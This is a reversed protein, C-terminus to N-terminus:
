QERRRWWWLLGGLIAFALPGVVVCWIYASKLQSQTMLLRMHEPRKNEAVLQVERDLAWLIANNLFRENGGVGRQAWESSMSEASGIVVLRAGDSGETAIAPSAKEAEGGEPVSSNRLPILSAESSARVLAHAKDNAALLARPANWLTARRGEFDHVITHKGYTYSLWARGEFANTSDLLLSDTVQVHHGALLLNLKPLVLNSRLVILASGGSELYANLAFLEETSLARSPGHLILADCNDMTGAVRSEEVKVGARKLREAVHQWSHGAFRVTTESAQLPVEGVGKAVCLTEASRNLLKAMAGRFVGEARFESMAGAGLDDRAFSAMALLDVVERRSGVQFLVAGGASLEEPQIALERAWTDREQKNSLPDLQRVRLHPQQRQMRQLLQTVQRFVPDFVQERPRLVVVDVPESVESLLLQTSPELTNVKSRSWDSPQWHMGVLHSLSASSVLVCVLVFCLRLRSRRDNASVVNALTLMLVVILALRVFTSPAVEGQSLRSLSERLEPVILWQEQALYIGRIEDLEGLGLWAVFVSFSVVAAVVQSRTMASIAVGTALLAAGISLVGLYAAIVPGFDLSQGSPIYLQFIAILYLSPLWLLTYFLVLCWAPV